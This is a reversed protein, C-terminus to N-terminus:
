DIDFPIPQNETLKQHLAELGKATIRITPPPLEFDGTKRNLFPTAPREHLRGLDVQTQYACWGDRKAKPRYIWKLNALVDFLRNRGISIRDDQSLIKAADAVSMNGDADALHTWANAKPEIETIVSELEEVRQTTIALAQAVIEDDTLAPAPNKARRECEIFYQRAQRGRATRQLMALEKAMDLTLIHDKRNGGPVFGSTAGAVTKQTVYDTGETFGYDVMRNFWDNYRENLELFEWLARGNVAQRGDDTQTIPILTSM